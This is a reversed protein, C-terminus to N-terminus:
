YQEFRGIMINNIFDYAVKDITILRESHVAEDVLEKKLLEKKITEIHNKTKDDLESYESNVKEKHEELEQQVQTEDTNDEIIIETSAEGVTNESSEEAAETEGADANAELEAAEAEEKAQKEIEVDLESLIEETILIVIYSDGNEIAYYTPTERHVGLGEIDLVTMDLRVEYKTVKHENGESDMVKLATDSETNDICILDIFKNTSENDTESLRLPNSLLFDKSDVPVEMLKINYKTGDKVVSEFKAITEVGTTEDVENVVSYSYENNLKIMMAQNTTSMFESADRYNYKEKLAKVIASDEEVVQEAEVEISEVTTVGNNVNKNEMGYPSCGVLGVSIVLVALTKFKKM